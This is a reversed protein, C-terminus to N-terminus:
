SSSGEKDSNIQIQGKYEKKGTFLGEEIGSEIFQSKLREAYDTICEAIAEPDDQYIQQNQEL